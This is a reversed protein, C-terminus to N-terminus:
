IDGDTNHELSFKSGRLEKKTLKDQDMIDRAVGFIVKNYETCDALMFEFSEGQEDHEDGAHTSYWSCHLLWRNGPPPNPPLNKVRAGGTQVQKRFETTAIAWYSRAIIQSSASRQLSRCWLRNNLELSPVNCADNSRCITLHNIRGVAEEDVADLRDCFEAFAKLGTSDGCRLSFRTEQWFRSRALAYMGRSEKYTQRCTLLLAKDPGQADLLDVNAHHCVPSGMSNSTFAMEWISNRLEPPLTLLPSPKDLPQPQDATSMSSVWRLLPYVVSAAM